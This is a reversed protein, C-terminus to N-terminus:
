TTSYFHLGRQNVHLFFFDKLGSQIWSLESEISHLVCSYWMLQTDEAYLFLCLFVAIIGGKDKLQVKMEFFFM